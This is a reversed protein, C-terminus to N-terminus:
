GMKNMTLYWSNCFRKVHTTIIRMSFVIQVFANLIVCKAIVLSVIIDVLLTASVGLTWTKVGKYGHM